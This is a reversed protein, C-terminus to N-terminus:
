PLVSPLMGTLIAILIIAQTIILPLAIKWFVKKHLNNTAAGAILMVIFPIAVLALMSTGLAQWSLYQATEVANKGQIAACITSPDIMAHEM